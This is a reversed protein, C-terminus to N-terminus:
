QKKPRGIKKLKAFEEDIKEIRDRAQATKDPRKEGETAGGGTETSYYSPIQPPLMAYKGLRAATDTSEPFDPLPERGFAPAENM